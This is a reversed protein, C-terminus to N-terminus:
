RKQLLDPICNSGLHLSRAGAKSKLRLLSCVSRGPYPNPSIMTLRSVSSFLRFNVACDCGPRPLLIDIKRDEDRKM